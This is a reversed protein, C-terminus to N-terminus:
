RLEHHLLRVFVELKALAVVRPLSDPESLILTLLISNRPLLRRALAKLEVLSVDAEQGQISPVHALAIFDGVLGDCCM